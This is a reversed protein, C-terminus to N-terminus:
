PGLRSRSTSVARHTVGDGFGFWSGFAVSRVQTCRVTVTQQDLALSATMTIDARALDRARYGDVASEVEGLVLLDDSDGASLRGGNLDAASAAAIAAGDCQDQLQRQQVFADGAAVAGATILLAVLFLGLILPM